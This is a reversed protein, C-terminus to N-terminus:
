DIKPDFLFCTSLSVFCYLAPVQLFLTKARLAKAFTSAFVSNKCAFAKCLLAKYPTQVLKALSHKRRERSAELFMVFSQEVKQPVLAKTGSLKRDLAKSQYGFTQLVINQSGFSQKPVRLNAAKPSFNKSACCPLRVEVFIYSKCSRRSFSRKQICTKCAKNKCAVNLNVLM